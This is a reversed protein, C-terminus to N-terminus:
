AGQREAPRSTPRPESTDHPVLQTLRQPAMVQGLAARLGPRLPLKLELESKKM